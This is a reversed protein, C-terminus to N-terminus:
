LSKIIAFIIFLEYLWLSISFGWSNDKFTLAEKMVEPFRIWWYTNFVLGIIAFLWM